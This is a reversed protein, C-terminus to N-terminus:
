NWTSALETAKDLARLKTDAGSGFWAREVSQDPLEEPQVKKYDEFRTIANYAGWLTGRV